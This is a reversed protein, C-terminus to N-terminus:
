RGRVELVVKGRVHETELEREAEAAQQLPFVRDVNPKVEGADILQAIEALQGGNPKAMYHLGRANKARARAQDPEKLTSVLAGGDKLVTWSRDQTEGAV